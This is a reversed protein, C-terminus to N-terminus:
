KLVQVSFMSIELINSPLSTEEVLLQLNISLEGLM